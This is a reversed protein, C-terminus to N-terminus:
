KVEELKNTFGYWLYGRVDAYGMARMIEMYAQVQEVYERKPSGFKYDLVIAENGRIMVRDMRRQRVETGDPSLTLITDERMLQWSGDFWESAMPHSMMRDLISQIRKKVGMSPIQGRLHFADVVRDTDAKMRIKEMIAHCLNGFEASHTQEEEKESKGDSGRAIEKQSLLM